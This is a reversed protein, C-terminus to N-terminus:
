AEDLAGEDLHRLRMGAAFLTVGLFVAYVGVIWQQSPAGRDAHMALITAAILSAVGAVGLLRQGALVRHLQLATALELLGTVAAWGAIILALTIPAIAAAVAIAGLAIGLIGEVILPWGVDGGFSRARRGAFPAALGALFAFGGIGFAAFGFFTGLEVSDMPLLLAVVGFLAAVVGRAIVMWWGRALQM